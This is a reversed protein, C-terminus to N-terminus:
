FNHIVTDMELLISQSIVEGTNDDFDSMVYEQREIFDTNIKIENNEANRGVLRIKKVQNEGGNFHAYIDRVFNKISDSRKAKINISVEHQIQSLRDSFNLAAGGLLQKSVFVDACVVRTLENLEEIFSDKIITEFNFRFVDPLGLHPIFSNLYSVMQSITIGDFYKEMVLVIDGNIFKAVLHTKKREGEPLRKPNDRENVTISDILPPRTSHTASKFIVHFRTNNFPRITDILCFKDYKFNYKKDQNSLREMHNMLSIFVSQADTQNEPSIGTLYYFGIKRKKAM